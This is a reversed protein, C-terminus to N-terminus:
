VHMMGGNDMFIMLDEISPKEIIFHEGIDGTAIKKREVLGEFGYLNENVQVCQRKFSDTLIEKKGKIVGYKEILDDKPESFVLSGQNIYTIYDAKKELDSTIHTSFFVSRQGDDIVDTLIDMLENRNVPDLGSTPEDMILLRAGHSIAIAIALKTKTGKSLDKIKKSIDVDFAKSYNLFAQEDWTAYFPAIVSKIQQGTLEEYFVQDDLVFGINSKIFSDHKKYDKGFVRVEGSDLAITNLIAKITTTKGSGNAGIFGMILGEDLGFSLDNIQFGDYKKRIKNVELIAGM